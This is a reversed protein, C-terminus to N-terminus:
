RWEDWGRFPSPKRAALIYLNSNPESAKSGIYHGQIITGMSRLLILYVGPTFMPPLSFWDNVISFAVITTSSVNIELLVDVSNINPWDAGKIINTTTGNLSIKQIKRDLSYNISVNGGVLGMDLISTESNLVESANIKKTIGNQVIVFNDERNLNSAEELESIKKQTM